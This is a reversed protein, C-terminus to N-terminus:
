RTPVIMRPWRPNETASSFRCYLPQDIETSCSEPAEFLKRARLIALQATQTKAVCTDEFCTDNQLM